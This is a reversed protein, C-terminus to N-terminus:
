LIDAHLKRHCMCCLLICKDLETKIKRFSIKRSSLKYDKQNPDKHHFDYVCPDDILGCIKCKGGLYEIARHKNSNIYDLMRKRQCNRCCSAYYKKNEDLLVLGSGKKMANLSIPLDDLSYDAFLRQYDSANRGLFGFTQLCIKDWDQKNYSWTARLQQIKKGIYWKEIMRMQIELNRTKRSERTTPRYKYNHKLSHPSYKKCVNCIKWLDTDKSLVATSYNHNHKRHCIGCLVECKLIEKKKLNSPIKSIVDRKKQPDKHHFDYICPDDVLGCVSCSGGLLKLYQEKRNHSSRRGYDAECQRCQYMWQNNRQPKPRHRNIQGCKKCKQIKDM